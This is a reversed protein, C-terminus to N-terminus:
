CRAEKPRYAAPDKEFAGRCGASCFHYTVGEHVFPRTTDDAAVTMPILSQGGALM